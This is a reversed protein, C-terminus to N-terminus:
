TAAHSRISTSARHRLHGPEAGQIQELWDTEACGLELVNAGKPWDLSWLLVAATWLMMAPDSHSYTWNMSKPM